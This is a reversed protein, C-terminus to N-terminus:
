HASRVDGVTGSSPPLPRRHFRHRTSTARPLSPFHHRTSAGGKEGLTPSSWIYAGHDGRVNKKAVPKGGPCLHTRTHGGDAHGGGTAVAKAHRGAGRAYLARRGPGSESSRAPPPPSSSARRERPERGRARHRGAPAGHGGRAIRAKAGAGDTKASSNPRCGRTVALAAWGLGGM